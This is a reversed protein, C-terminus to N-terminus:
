EHSLFDFFISGQKWKWLGILLTDVVAMEMLAAVLTSCTMPSLGLICDAYICSLQSEVSMEHYWLFHILM